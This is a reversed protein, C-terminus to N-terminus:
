FRKLSHMFHIMNEAINGSMKDYEKIANRGKETIKYQKRAKEGQNEKSVAEIYGSRELQALSPYVAAPGPRWMGDTKEFIQEMIEFGHMPKETLLRLIFPQLLGKPVVDVNFPGCRCRKGNM